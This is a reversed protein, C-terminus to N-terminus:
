IPSLLEGSRAKALARVGNVVLRQFHETGRHGDLAARDRYVEWLVFVNPDEQSRAIEFSAVGAEGRSADRLERLMAEVRDSDEPAFTFHVCQILM